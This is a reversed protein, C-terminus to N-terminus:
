GRSADRLCVVYASQPVLYDSVSDRQERYIVSLPDLDYRSCAPQPKSEVYYSGLGYDDRIISPLAGSYTEEISLGVAAQAASSALAATFIISAIIRTKM